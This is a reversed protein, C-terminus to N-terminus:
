EYTPREQPIRHPYGDFAYGVYHGQSLVSNPGYRDKNVSALQEDLWRVKAQADKLDRFLWPGGAEHTLWAAESVEPQYTDYWWGGEEPGGYARDHLAVCVVYFKPPLEQSIVLEGANEPTTNRDLYDRAQEWNLESMVVDYDGDAGDRPSYDRVEYTRKSGFEITVPAPGTGQQADMAAVADKIWDNSM